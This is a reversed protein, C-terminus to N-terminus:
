EAVPSQRIRTLLWYSFLLVGVLPFFTMFLYPAPSVIAEPRPLVGVTLALLLKRSSM